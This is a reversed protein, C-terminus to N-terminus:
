GSVGCIPQIHEIIVARYRDVLTCLKLWCLLVMTDIDEISVVVNIQM